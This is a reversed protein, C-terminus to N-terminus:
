KIGHSPTRQQVISILAEIVENETLSDVNIRVANIANYIPYRETYLKDLPGLATVLKRSLITALSTDLFAFRGNKKLQNVNEPNLVTGGGVAIIAGSVDILSAVIKSELRRFGDEGIVRYIDPCTNEMGGDKKWKDILLTDTDIFSRNTALALKQGFYTKGCGKFGFLIINM